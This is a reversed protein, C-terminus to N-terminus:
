YIEFGYDCSWIGGSVLMRLPKPSYDPSYFNGDIYNFIMFVFDTGFSDVASVEIGSDWDINSVSKIEAFGILQQVVIKEDEFIASYEYMMNETIRVVYFEDDSVLYAPTYVGNSNKMRVYNGYYSSYETEGGFDPLIPGVPVEEGPEIPTEGGPQEEIQAQYTLYVDRFIFFGCLLVAILSFCVILSVIVRKM